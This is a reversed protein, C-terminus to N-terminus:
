GLTYLADSVQETAPVIKLYPVSKKQYILLADTEQLIYQKIQKITEEPARIIFGAFYIDQEPQPTSTQAM